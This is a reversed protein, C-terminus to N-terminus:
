HKIELVIDRWGREAASMSHMSTREMIDVRIAAAVNVAFATCDAQDSTAYESNAKTRLRVAHDVCGCSSFIPFARALMM